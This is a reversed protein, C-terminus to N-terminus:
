GGDCLTCAVEGTMPDIGLYDIGHVGLSLKVHPIGGVEVVEHGYKELVYRRAKPKPELRYDKGDPGVHRVQCCLDVREGSIASQKAAHLKASMQKVQLATLMM